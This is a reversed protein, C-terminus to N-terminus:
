GITSSVNENETGEKIQNLFNKILQKGHMTGISEPHFQLGYVPYNRHKIAMIENDDMSISLTVFIPPLSEKEIVLSHYRMVELPQTLNSFLENENFAINSSKGHKIQNAKTITGGFAFGIAQHGLCIGLIPVSKYFTHILEITQKIEEPNGPGPSLVIAKPQMQEIESLTFKDFRVVQIEEGLEGLYQYLNYTFSDYHDILVIM